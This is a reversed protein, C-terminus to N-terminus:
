AHRKLVPKKESELFTDFHSSPTREMAPPNHHQLTSARKNLTLPTTELIDTAIKTRYPLSKKFTENKPQVIMGMEAARMAATM